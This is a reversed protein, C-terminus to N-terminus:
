RGHNEHYNLENELSKRICVAEFFDKYLGVYGYGGISVSWGSIHKSIGSVGSTNDKNLSRNKQNAKHGALRLNIIRNDTRDHNIHDIEIEPFNGYIYLWVLRHGSYRTGDVRIDVYRGKTTRGAISGARAGQTTTLRTFVGTEADYSVLEKLREQTIM